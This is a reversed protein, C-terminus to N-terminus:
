RRKKRQAARGFVYLLFGSLLLLVSYGASLKLELRVPEGLYRVSLESVAAPLLAAGAGWLIGAALHVGGITTLSGGRKPRIFIIGTLFFVCALLLFAATQKSQFLAYARVAMRASGGLELLLEDCAADLAQKVGPIQSVAASELLETEIGLAEVPLKSSLQQVLEEFFSKLAAEAEAGDVAEAVSAKDKLVTEAAADMYLVALEKLSENESILRSVEEKAGGAVPFAEGVARDVAQSVVDESLLLEAAAGSGLSAAAASVGLLTLCLFYCLACFSRLIKM